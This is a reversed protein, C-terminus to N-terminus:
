CRDLLLALHRRGLNRRRFIECEPCSVARRAKRSRIGDFLVSIPSFASGLSPEPINRSASLGWCQFAALFCFDGRSVAIEEVSSRVGPRTFQGHVITLALGFFTEVCHRDSAELVHELITHGQDAEESAHGLRLPLRRANRRGDNPM